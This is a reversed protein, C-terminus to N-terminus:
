LPPALATPREDEIRRDRAHRDEASVLVVSGGAALPVALAALWGPAEAPGTAAPAAVPDIAMLRGGSRLGWAAALARSREMVAAATPRSGDSLLLAPDGPSQMSHPVFVDPQDRAPLWLPALSVEVVDTSTGISAAALSEPRATVAARVQQAPGATRDPTIDAIARVSWCAGLWVARQWHMPLDLWVVDGPAVDIEDRLYGAAKAIANALSAM